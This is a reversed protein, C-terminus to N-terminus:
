HRTWSHTSSYRRERYAKRPQVNVDKLAYNNISNNILPIRKWKDYQAKTATRQINTSFGRSFFTLRQVSYITGTLNQFLVYERHFFNRCVGQISHEPIFIYRRSYFLIFIRIETDHRHWTRSSQWRWTSHHSSRCHWSLFINLPARWQKEFMRERMDGDRYLVHVSVMTVICSM